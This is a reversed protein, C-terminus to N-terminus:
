LKTPSSFFLVTYLCYLLIYEVRQCIYLLLGVVVFMVKLAIFFVSTFVHIFTEAKFFNNVYAMIHYLPKYATIYSRYVISGLACLVGAM